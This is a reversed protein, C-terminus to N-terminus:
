LNFWSLSLVQDPFITRAQTGSIIMDVLRVTVVTASISGVTRVYSRTVDRLGQSQWRVLHVNNPM